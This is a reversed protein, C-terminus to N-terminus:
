SLYGLSTTTIASRIRNLATVNCLSGSPGRREQIEWQGLLVYFTNITLYQCTMGERVAFRYSLGLGLWSTSLFSTYDMSLQSYCVTDLYHLALVKICTSTVGLLTNQTLVDFYKRFPTVLFRISYKM